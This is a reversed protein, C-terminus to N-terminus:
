SKKYFSPYMKTKDWLSFITRKKLGNAIQDTIIGRGICAQPEGWWANAEIIVAGKETLAIDWGISGMFNLKESADFALKLVDEFGKLTVGVLDCLSDPHIEIKTLKKYDYACLTKGGSNLEVLIGGARLNDVQRGNKGLKLFSCANHWKNDKTKIMIIRFTNLCSSNFDRLCENNCLKEEVIYGNEFRSSIHNWIMNNTYLNSGCYLNDGKKTLVLVDNGHTGSIPKIVFDTDVSNLFSNMQSQNSIEFKKGITTLMQATPLDLYQLIHKQIYKNTFIVNFKLLNNGHPFYRSGLLSVYRSKEKFSKGKKYFKFKFYDRPVTNIKIKHLIIDVIL